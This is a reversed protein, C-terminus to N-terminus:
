SSPASNKKASASKTTPTDATDACYGVSLVTSPPNPLRNFPARTRAPRSGTSSNSSATVGVAAVARPAWGPSVIASARTPGSAIAAAAGASASPGAPVPVTVKWTTPTTALALPNTSM